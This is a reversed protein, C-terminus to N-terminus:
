HGECAEYLFAATKYCLNMKCKHLLERIIEIEIQVQVMTYIDNHIYIHTLKKIKWENSPM